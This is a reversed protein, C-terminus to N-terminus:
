NRLKKNNNRRFKHNYNENDETDDDDDDDNDDDTDDSNDTWYHSEKFKRKKANVQQQEQNNLLELLEQPGYTKSLLKLKNQIDFNEPIGNDYIIDEDEFIERCLSRDAIELKPFDKHNGFSIKKVRHLHFHSCIQALRLVHMFRILAPTSMPRIREEEEQAQRMLDDPHIYRPDLCRRMIENQSMKDKKVMLGQSMAAFVNFESVLQIQQKPINFPINIYTAVAPVSIYIVNEFSMVPEILWENTRVFLTNTRNSTSSLTVALMKWLLQYHEDTYYLKMNENYFSAAFM